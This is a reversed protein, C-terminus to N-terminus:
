GSTGKPIVGFRNLHVQPFHDQSLPGLVRGRSCEEALYSDIVEPQDWASPMNQTHCQLLSGINGSFDVRFGERMGDM